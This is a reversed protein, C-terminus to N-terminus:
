PKEKAPPQLSAELSQLTKQLQELQKKLETLQDSTTAATKTTSWRIEAEPHPSERQRVWGRLVSDASQVKLQPTFDSSLQAGVVCSMEQGGRLYVLTAARDKIEQIQENVGDVTSLRKNDLKILVDHERIGAKAAPGDPVLNTVVLGEGSALKLQSRLTDDAEALGVGIRYRKEAEGKKVSRYLGYIPTKPIPVSVDVPKGQRLLHLRITKGQESGVLEHFKEPSTVPREDFKLVIDHPKLGLKEADKDNAVGTVVVGVGEEVGLQARLAAEAPAVEVGLPNGHARTFLEYYNRIEVRSTKPSPEQCWLPSALSFILVAVGTLHRKM